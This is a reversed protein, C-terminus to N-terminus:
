SVMELSKDVIAFIDEFPKPFFYDAGLSKASELDYNGSYASILIVFSSERIEKPIEQLVEPGSLGPMLVDLYVIDPKEAKWLELGARGDAAELVSMKKSELARKLSRRVLPEDDIILIKKM